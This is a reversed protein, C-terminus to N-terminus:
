DDHGDGGHDDTGMTAILARRDELSRALRERLDDITRDAERLRQQLERQDHTIARVVAAGVVLVASCALLPANRKM